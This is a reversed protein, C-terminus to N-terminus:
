RGKPAEPDVVVSMTSLGEIIERTRHREKAVLDAKADGFAVDIVLSSAPDTDFSV